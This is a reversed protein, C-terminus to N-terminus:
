KDKGLLDNGKFFNNKLVNLKNNDWLTKVTTAPDEIKHLLRCVWRMHDKVVNPRRSGGEFDKLHHRFLQIVPLSEIEKITSNEQECKPRQPEALLVGLPSEDVESESSPQQQRTV